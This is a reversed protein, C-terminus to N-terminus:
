QDEELVGYRGSQTTAGVAVRNGVHNFVCPAGRQGSMGLDARGPRADFGLTLETGGKFITEPAPSFLPGHAEAAMPAVMAAITAAALCRFYRKM